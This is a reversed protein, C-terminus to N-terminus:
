KTLIEQSNIPEEKTTTDKGEEEVVNGDKDYIVTKTDTSVELDVNRAGTLEMSIKYKPLINEVFKTKQIFIGGFSILSILVIFLIILVKKLIKETKM